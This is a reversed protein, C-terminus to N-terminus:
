HLADYAEGLYAEVVQPNKLVSAPAGRAIVQGAALVIVDEALEAIVDMIHEVLIVTAGEARASRILAIMEAMETPNLGCMVEDLLMLKPQMAICRALEMRKRDPLTLSSPRLFQAAALGVRELVALARRRALAARREIVFAGVMVNELVTLDNFPRVIQFTRAIGLSARQAPALRTIDSSGFHISGANPSLFGTLINFLTTKGAGNPGILGVIAGASVELDVGSLVALGGFRKKIGHMELM